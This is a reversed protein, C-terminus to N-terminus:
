ASRKSTVVVESAAPFAEDPQGPILHISIVGLLLVLASPQTSYSVPSSCLPLLDNYHHSWRGSQSVGDFRLGVLSGIEVVWEQRLRQQRHMRTDGMPISDVGKEVDPEQWAWKGEELDWGEGLFVWRKIHVQCLYNCHNLNLCRRGRNEWVPFLPVNQVMPM